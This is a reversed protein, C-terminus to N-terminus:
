IEGREYIEFFERNEKREEIELIKKPSTEFKHIKGNADKIKMKKFKRLYKSNRTELFRRVSAFYEGIKSADKSNTVIISKRKGNSYISMERQIRDLSKPIWRSGKKTISNGLHKLITKRNLDRQKLAKTFSKGQRMQRLVELANTRTVRQSPSLKSWRKKSLILDSVRLKRLQKLSYNPKLKHLRTIRNIYSQNSQNKLWDKITKYKQTFNEM